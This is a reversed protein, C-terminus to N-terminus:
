VGRLDSANAREDDIMMEPQETMAPDDQLLSQLEHYGEVDQIM